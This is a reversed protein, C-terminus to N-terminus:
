VEINPRRGKIAGLFIIQAFVLFIVILYFVFTPVSIKTISTLISLLATFLPPIVVFLIMYVLSLPSLESGYKRLQARQERLANEHINFLITSIDVGSRLSNAIQWIVRRFTMSPNRLAMNELAETQPIGANMESVCKKFEKSIYGYDKNSISVMVEYLPIGSRVKILMHRLVLPLTREIEKVKRAIKLKPYLTHYFWSLLWFIVSFLIALLFNKLDLTSYMKILFIFLFFSLVSILTSFFLAKALFDEVSLEIDAQQLELKLQPYLKSLKKIFKSKKRM